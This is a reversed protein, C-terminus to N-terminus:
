FRLAIAAKLLTLGIRCEASWLLLISCLHGLNGICLLVTVPIPVFVLRREVDHHVSLPKCDLSAYQCEFLDHRERERVFRGIRVLCEGHRVALGILGPVLSGQHGAVRRINLVPRHETDGEGSARLGSRWLSRSSPYSTDTM